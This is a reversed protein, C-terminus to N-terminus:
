LLRSVKVLYTDAPVDCYVTVIQGTNIPGSSDCIYVHFVDVRLFIVCALGMLKVDCFNSVLRANHIGTIM